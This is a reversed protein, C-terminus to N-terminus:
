VGKASSSNNEFFESKGTEKIDMYAILNKIFYGVSYFILIWYSLPIFMKIIWRYPLGGPDASGENSTYAEVVFDFSLTAVLLSFPLIFLITGVMNIIAKTKPKIGDYLIDVRVHADEKLAYTMGLLFMISFFYWELEQFAVNGYHFFYRACVNFFVFGVLLVVCFMAIYGMANAVHNFINDIKRLKEKM